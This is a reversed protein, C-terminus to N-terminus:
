KKAKRKRGPKGKERGSVAKEQTKVGEPEGVVEPAASDIVPPEVSDSDTDVGVDGVLGVLYGYLAERAESEGCWTPVGMLGLFRKENPGRNM